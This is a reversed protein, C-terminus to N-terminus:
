LNNFVDNPLSKIQSQIEQDLSSYIKIGMDKNVLTLAKMCYSIMETDKESNLKIVLKNIDLTPSEIIKRAVEESVYIIENLFSCIKEVNSEDNIKDILKKLDFKSSEVLKKALTKSASEIDGIFSGIKKIDKEINLKSWLIPLLKKAIENSLFTITHVCFGIRSINEENNIKGILNELNFDPSEILEKGVEKSADRIGWFLFGIKAIDNENDIKNKLIKLSSPPSILFKHALRRDARAVGMLCQSIKKADTEIDIKNKLIKLDFEGCNILRKAIKKCTLAIYELCWGIKEIDKEANIKNILRKLDLKQSELLKREFINNKYGICFICSGIKFINQEDNIKDILKILDFDKSEILKKALTKSSKKIEMVCQGIKEIDRELNIKQRVIPLLKKGVEESAYVIGYMCQTIREVGKESDFKNKLKEIDFYPSEILNRAVEKSNIEAVCTGIKEIDKEANIKKILRELDFETSEVLKKAVRNSARSVTDLFWGIKEIDSELNIIELIQSNYLKLIELILKKGSHEWPPINSILDLSKGPFKLIYVSFLDLQLDFSNKDKLSFKITNQLEDYSKKLPFCSYVAQIYIKAISSHHHAIMDEEIMRLFGNKILSEVAERPCNLVDTLFESCIPIEFESFFAAALIPKTANKISYDREICGKLWENCIFDYIKSLDIEEEKMSELAISLLWLDNSFKKLSEKQSGTIVIGKRNQFLTLFQDFWDEATIRIYTDQIKILNRLHHGTQLGLIHDLPRSAILIPVGVEKAKALIEEAKYHNIHANDVLVVAKEKLPELKAVDNEPEKNQIFDVVWVAKGLCSLLFGIYHLFTSKGSAPEGVIIGCYPPSNLQAIAKKIYDERLAVYNNQYDNWKLGSLIRRFDEVEVGVERPIFVDKELVTEIRLWSPTLSKQISVLEKKFDELHRETSSICKEFIKVEQKITSIIDKSVESIIPTLLNEISGGPQFIDELLKSTENLKEKNLKKIQNIFEKKINDIYENILTERSEKNKRIKEYIGELVRFFGVIIGHRAFEESIILGIIPRLSQPAFPGFLLFFPGLSSLAILYEILIVRKEPKLKGELEDYLSKRLKERLSQLTIKFNM